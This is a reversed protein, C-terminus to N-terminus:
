MPRSSLSKLAFSTPMSPSVKPTYSAPTFTFWAFSVSPLAAVLGGFSSQVVNKSLVVPSVGVLTGSTSALTSVSTCPETARFANSTSMALPLKLSCSPWTVSRPLLWATPPVPVAFSVRYWAM